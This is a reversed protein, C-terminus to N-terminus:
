GKKLEENKFARRHRVGVQSDVTCCLAAVALARLFEQAFLADVVVPDINLLVGIPQRQHLSPAVAANITRSYRL